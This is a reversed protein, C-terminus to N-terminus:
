SSGSFVRFRRFIGGRRNQGRSSSSSGSCGVSGGYSGSCGASSGSCGISNRTPPATVSPVYVDVTEPEDLAPFMQASVPITLHEVQKGQLTIPPLIKASFRWEDAICAAAGALVIMIALRMANVEIIIHLGM